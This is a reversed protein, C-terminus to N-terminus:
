TIQQILQYEDWWTRHESVKGGSITAITVGAYDIPKGSAPYQKWAGIHTGRASFVAVVRDGEAILDKVTHELDPFAQLFESCFKEVGEPKAFILRAATPDHKNWMETYIRRVLEKNNEKSM